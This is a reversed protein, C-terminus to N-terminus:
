EPKIGASRAIERWAALEARIRAALEQPGIYDPVAGQTALKASADATGAFAEM